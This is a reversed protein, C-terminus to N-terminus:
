NIRRGERSSKLLVSLFHMKVLVIDQKVRGLLPFTAVASFCDSTSAMWNSPWCLKTVRRLQCAYPQRTLSIVM